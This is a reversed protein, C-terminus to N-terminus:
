VSSNVCSASPKLGGYNVDYGKTTPIIVGGEKDKKPHGKTIGKIASDRIIADRLPIVGKPKDVAIMINGVESEDFLKRERPM